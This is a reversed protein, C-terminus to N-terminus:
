QTALWRIASERDPFPKISRGTFTEIAAILVQGLPTVGVIASACVFPENAKAFAKIANVWEMDYRSHTVDTLTRLSKPAKSRILPAAQQIVLLAEKIQCSSLDILLIEKGARSLLQLRDM